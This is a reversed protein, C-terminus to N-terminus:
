STGYVSARSEDIIEDHVDTFKYGTYLEILSDLDSTYGIEDGLANFAKVFNKYESSKALLALPTDKGTYETPFNDSSIYNILSDAKDKLEAYKDIASTIDKNSKKFIKATLERFALFFINDSWNKNYANYISLGVVDSTDREAKIYSQLTKFIDRAVGGKAEALADIWSDTLNFTADKLLAVYVADVTNAKGFAAVENKFSELTKQLGSSDTWSLNYTKNNVTVTVLGLASGLPSSLKYITGNVNIQRDNTNLLDAVYAGLMKVIEGEYYPSSIKPAEVSIVSQMAAMYVEDPLKITPSVTVKSKFEKLLKNLENEVNAAAEEQMRSKLVEETKAKIGTM